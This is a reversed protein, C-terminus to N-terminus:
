SRFSSVQGFSKKSRWKKIIKSYSRVTLTLVADATPYFYFLQDTLYGINGESHISCEEYKAWNWAIEYEGKCVYHNINYAVIIVIIPLGLVLPM